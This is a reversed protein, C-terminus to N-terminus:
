RCERVESRERFRVAGDVRSLRAIDVPTTIAAYTGCRSGPSQKLISLEVGDATRTAGEM